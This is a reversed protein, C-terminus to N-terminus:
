DIMKYDPMSVVMSFYVIKGKFCASWHYVNTCCIWKGNWHPIPNPLATSKDDSEYQLHVNIYLFDNYTFNYVFFIFFYLYSMEIRCNVICEKGKQILAWRASTSLKFSGIYVIIYRWTSYECKYQKNLCTNCTINSYFTDRPRNFDCNYSQLILGNRALGGKYKYMVIIFFINILFGWSM